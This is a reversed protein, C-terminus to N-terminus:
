MELPRLEPRPYADRYLRYALWGIVCLMGVWGVLRVFHGINQDHELIGWQGFLITWDGIDSNVLPLSHARADAM